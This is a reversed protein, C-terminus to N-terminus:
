KTTLTGAPDSEQGFWVCAYGKYIGIGIANWGRDEWNEKNLIVNNHGSSKKWSQLAYEATMVFSSYQPDSSGCAIEYGYGTYSTMEAPKNWICQAQKHDPTYCCASWNGKDSWSHANCGGAAIDPKHTYLDLCHQQAVYTLSKSLPISPLNNQQRYEMILQYLKLEEATCQVQDASTQVTTATEDIVPVSPEEVTSATESSNIQERDVATGCASFILLSILYISHRVM